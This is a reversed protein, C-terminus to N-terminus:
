GGMQLTARADALAQRVMDPFYHCVVVNAGSAARMASCNRNLPNPDRHSTYFEEATRYACGGLVDRGIVHRWSSRKSQVEVVACFWLVNGNRVADIDDQFEFSDAPDMDEPDLRLTVVYNRTHFSWVVNGKNM